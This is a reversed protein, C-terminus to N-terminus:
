DVVPANRLAELLSQKEEAQRKLFDLRKKLDLFNKRNEKPITNWEKALSNFESVTDKYDEEANKIRKEKGKTTLGGKIKVKTDGKIKEGLWEKAQAKAAALTLGTLKKDNVTVTYRSRKGEKRIGGGGVLADEAQISGVPSGSSDRVRFYGTSVKDIEVGQRCKGSTGYTTGDSRQCTVFDYVKQLAEESFSGVM